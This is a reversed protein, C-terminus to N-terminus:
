ESSGRASTWSAQVALPPAKTVTEAATSAARGTRLVLLRQIPAGNPTTLFCAQGLTGPRDLRTGVVVYENPAVTLEWSLWDYTENPEQADWEWRRAGGQEQVPRPKLSAKGHKIRPTFQLHIREDELTPRVELLCQADELDIEQKGEGQELQFVCHKAVPGLAVSKPSGACWRLHHADPNSRPSTLLAQLGAPPLGGIQCIRFGNAELLMKLELNVRQEDALTWLEENLYRDGVPREILAIDMAVVNPGTPGDFSAGDGFLSVSREPPTTFCGSFLGSLVVLVVAQLHRMVGM